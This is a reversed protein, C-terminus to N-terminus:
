RRLHPTNEPKQLQFLPPSLSSRQRGAVTRLYFLCSELQIELAFSGYCINELCHSVCIFHLMATRCCLETSRTQPGLVKTNISHHLWCLLPVEIAHAYIFFKDSQFVCCLLCVIGISTLFFFFFTPSLKTNRKFTLPM